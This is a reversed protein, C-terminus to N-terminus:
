ATVLFDTELCHPAILPFQSLFQSSSPVMVQCPKRSSRSKSRGERWAGDSSLNALSRERCRVGVHRGWSGKTRKRALQKACFIVRPIVGSRAHKQAGPISGAAFLPENQPMEHRSKVM